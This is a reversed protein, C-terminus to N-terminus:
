RSTLHLEISSQGARPDDVVERGLITQVNYKPPIAVGDKTIQIRYLGPALGRFMKGEIQFEGCTGRADTKATATKLVSGMCPEPLFTVTADALPQGDYQIICTVGVSGTTSAAYKEFRARLENQSLKRDRDTDIAQLSSQLAPCANLESGDLLSDKNKDFESMAAQVIADSDYKPVSAEKLHTKSSDCGIAPLVVIVGFWAYRM